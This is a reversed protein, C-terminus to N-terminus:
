ARQNSDDGSGNQKIVEDIQQVNQGITQVASKITEQLAEIQANKAQVDGKCAEKQQFLANKATDLVAHLSEISDGLEKLAAFTRKLYQESM